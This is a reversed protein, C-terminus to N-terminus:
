VCIYVCRRSYGRRYTAMRRETDFAYLTSRTHCNNVRRERRKKRPKQSRKKNNDRRMQQALQMAERNEENKKYKTHLSSSGM